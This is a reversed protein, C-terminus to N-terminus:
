VRLITPLTLHTYSVAAFEKIAALAEAVSKVNRMSVTYLALGAARFHTHSDNLGPVATRGGLDVVKTSPGSFRKVEADSGVALFKGDRIAVAQAIASRKDLTVIKGNHLILDAPVSQALAPLACAALVAVALCHSKRM